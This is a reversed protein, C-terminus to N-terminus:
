RVRGSSEKHSKPPLAIFDPMQFDLIQTRVEFRVLGAPPGALDPVQARLLGSFSAQRLAIPISTEQPELTM